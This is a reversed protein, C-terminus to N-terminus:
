RPGLALKSIAWSVLLSIVPNRSSRALRRVTPVTLRPKCIRRATNDWALRSPTMSTLLASRTEIGFSRRMDCFVLGEGAIPAANLLWNATTGWFNNAGGGDWTVVAGLPPTVALLSFDNGDGGLYTVVFASAGLTLLSGEPRGGFEGTIADTGDNRILVFETGVAPTFNLAAALVAGAVDM